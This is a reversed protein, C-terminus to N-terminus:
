PNIGTVQNSLQYYTQGGTLFASADTPSWAMASGVTPPPLDDEDGEGTELLQVEVECTDVRRILYTADLLKHYSQGGYAVIGSYNSAYTSAMGVAPPLEDEDSMSTVTLPSVGTDDFCWGENSLKHYTQGGLVIGPPFGDEAASTDFAAVMGAAVPGSDASYTDLLEWDNAAIDYSWLETNLGHYGQGGLIYLKQNETDMVM